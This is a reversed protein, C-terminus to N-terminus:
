RISSTAALTDPRSIPPSNVLDIAPLRSDHIIRQDYRKLGIFLSDRPEGLLSPDSPGSVL